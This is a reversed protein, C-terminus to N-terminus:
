SFKTQNMKPFPLGLQKVRCFNAISKLDAECHSETNFAFLRHRLSADNVIEVNRALIADSIKREDLTGYLNRYVNAISPDSAAVRVISKAQSKPNRVTLVFKVESEDTEAAIRKWNDGISFPVDGATKALKHELFEKTIEMPDSDDTANHWWDYLRSEPFPRMSHMMLYTSM